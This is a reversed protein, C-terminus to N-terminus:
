SLYKSIIIRTLKKMRLKFLISSYHRPFGAFFSKVQSTRAPSTWWFPYQIWRTFRTFEQLPEAIIVASYVHHRCAICVLDTSLAREILTCAGMNLGTNSSTDLVLGRVQARLQWDDLTSMCRGTRWWYWSWDSPGCPAEGCWWWLRSCRASIQCFHCIM